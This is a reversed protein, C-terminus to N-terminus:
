RGFRRGRGSDYETGGERQGQGQGHGRYVGGVGRSGSAQGQGSGSPGFAQTQFGEHLGPMPDYQDFSTGYPPQMQPGEMQGGGGGLGGGAGQMEMDVGPQINHGSIDFIHQWPDDYHGHLQGISEFRQLAAMHDLPNAAVDMSSSAPAGFGTPYAPDFGHHPDHQQWPASSPHHQQYTHPHPAPTTSSLNSFRHINYSPPVPADTPLDMVSWNIMPAVLRILRDFIEWAKRASVSQEAMTRLWRVGKKADDLILTTESPLHQSRFAMELMLVSLAECIYHLTNWWPTVTYLRHFNRTTTNILGIMERASHVCEEVAFQNFDKSRDSQDKSRGEFRCLCPRFLIIRSSCFQMALGIRSLVIPDDLNPEDWVDFDIGFEPPLCKKWELLTKDIRRITAQVESWKSKITAACYLQTMIEHSIICLQIRYIFYTASTIPLTLPAFSYNQPDFAGIPM